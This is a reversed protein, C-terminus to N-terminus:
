DPFYHDRLKSKNKLFNEMINKESSNRLRSVLLKVYEKYEDANMNCYDDSGYCDEFFNEDDAADNLPYNKNM